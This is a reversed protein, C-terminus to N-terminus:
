FDIIVKDAHTQDNILNIRIKPNQSINQFPFKTYHSIEPIFSIKFNKPFPLNKSFPFNYFIPFDSFSRFITLVKDAHTQDNILNIRIKPNQSINQNKWLLEKRTHWASGELSIRRLSSNFDAERRQEAEFVRPVLLHILDKKKSVTM